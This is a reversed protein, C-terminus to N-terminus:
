WLINVHKQTRRISMLAKMWLRNNVAYVLNFFYSLIKVIRSLVNMSLTDLFLNIVQLVLLKWIQGM